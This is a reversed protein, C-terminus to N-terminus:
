SRMADTPKLKSARWAPVLGGIVGVVAAMIMAEAIVRPTIQFAFAQEAFTKWNMTGTALGNVPLAFLIGLEGGMLGLVLSEFLFGMRIQWPKFGIALLAGIEHTRGAVAALLTNTCGFIAGISMIFALARALAGLVTGLVGAQAEMYDRENTAKIKFDSGSLRAILGTAPELERNADDDSVKAPKGIEVDKKARFHVVSYGSRDFVATLLEADGWIESDFSAGGSDIVGVVAWEEGGVVIAGGERCGKVRDTLGRGVVLEKKGAGFFRGQKVKVMDRYALATETTGRVSVNTSGQGIRDLNIAAFFEAIALPKGNVQEIEPIAMLKRALERTMSSEGESTAGDRMCIINDYRAATILTLEFGQQLALVISLVAVTMAVAVVTLLTTSKRYFLSRLHYRIPVAM